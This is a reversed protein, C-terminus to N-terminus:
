EKFTWAGAPAIAGNDALYARALLSGGIKLTIRSLEATGSHDLVYRLEIGTAPNTLPRVQTKTDAAPKPPYVAGFLDSPLMAGIGSKATRSESVAYGKARLKDALITGFSVPASAVFNFQTKAPPYLKALQNVTDTAIKEDYIAFRNDTETFPKLACASLSVCLLIMLLSRM